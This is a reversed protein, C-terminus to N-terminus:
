NTTTLQQDISEILQATTEMQEEEPIVSFPPVHFFLSYFRQDQTENSRCAQFKKMSSFYTYNCLFRGPDTSVITQNMTTKIQEVDLCTELSAGLEMGKDIPQHKPQYGREDPIRFTADNYAFQELQFSEGKYNVGLHLLVTRGSNNSYQESLKEIESDAAKVSVEMVLASVRGGLDAGNRETLFDVIRNAIQTTPNAKSNRFPGFGTVVFSVTEDDDGEM